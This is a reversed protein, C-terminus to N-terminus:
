VMWEQPDGELICHGRSFLAMIMEEVVQHQGVIVKGIQDAMREYAAAIEKVAQVEAAPMPHPEAGPRPSTTTSGAGVVRASLVTTRTTVPCRPTEQHLPAGAASGCAQAM